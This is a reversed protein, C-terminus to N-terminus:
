RRARPSDPAAASGAACTREAASSVWGGAADELGAVASAHMVIMWFLTPGDGPTARWWPQKWPEHKALDVADLRGLRTPLPASANM